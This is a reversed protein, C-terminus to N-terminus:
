SAWKSKVLRLASLTSRELDSHSAPTPEESDSHSVPTPETNIENETDIVPMPDDAKIYLGRLEDVCVELFELDTDTLEGGRDLRFLLGNLKQWREDIPFESISRLDLNTDPYAPYSVVSVDLLRVEELTREGKEENWSDQVTQFAFSNGTIDGRKISRVMDAVYSIGADLSSEYRLGDKAEKLTLTGASTRGFILNPDHNILGRVDAEKLTKKFTGPAIQERFGGLDESWKNFPAALGEIIPGDDNEIVRLELDPMFRREIKDM